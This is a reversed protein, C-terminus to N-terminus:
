TTLSPLLRALGELHQITLLTFSSRCKHKHDVSLFITAPNWLPMQPAAVLIGDCDFSIARCREVGELPSVKVTKSSSLFLSQSRHRSPSPLSPQNAMSLTEGIGSEDGKAQPYYTAVAGMMPWDNTRSETYLPSRTEVATKNM